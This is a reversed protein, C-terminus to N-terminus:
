VVQGLTNCQTTTYMNDFYTQFAGGPTEFAPTDLPYQVAFAQSTIGLISAISLILNRRFM